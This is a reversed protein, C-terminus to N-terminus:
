SSSPLAPAALFDFSQAEDELSKLLEPEDEVILLKM